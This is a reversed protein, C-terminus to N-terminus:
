VHVHVNLINESNNSLINRDGVAPLQLVHLRMEKYNM